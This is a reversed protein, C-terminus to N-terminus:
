DIVPRRLPHRRLLYRAKARAVHKRGDKDYHRKRLELATAGVTQNKFEGSNIDRLKIIDTYWQAVTLM